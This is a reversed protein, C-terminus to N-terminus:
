RNNIATSFFEDNNTANTSGNTLHNLESDLNGNAGNAANHNSTFIYSSNNTTSSSLSSSLISNTANPFNILQDNPPLMNEQNLENYQSLLHSDFRTSHENSALSVMKSQQKRKKNKNKNRETQHVERKLLENM